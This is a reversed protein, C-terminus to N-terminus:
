NYKIFSIFKKFKFTFNFLSFTQEFYYIQKIILQIFYDTKYLVLYDLYYRYNFNIKYFNFDLIYFLICYLGFYNVKNFYHLVFIYFIFSCIFLYKLTITFYSYYILIYFYSNLVIKSYGAKLLDFLNM